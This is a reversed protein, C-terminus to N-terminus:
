GAFDRTVVIDDGTGRIRDPGYSRLEFDRRRLTYEYANGWSDRNAGGSYQDDLWTPFQRRGPLRGFNEMRYNMLDSAVKDMESGTAMRLFPNIVPAGKDMLMARSDPFCFAAVIGLIVLLILRSM